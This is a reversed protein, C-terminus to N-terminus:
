HFITEQRSFAFLSEYNSCSITNLTCVTALPRMTLWEILFLVITNSFAFARQHKTKRHLCYVHITNCTTLQKLQCQWKNQNCYLLHNIRQNAAFHAFTKKKQYYSSKFRSLHTRTAYNSTVLPIKQFAMFRHTLFLSKSSLSLSDSCVILITPYFHQQSEHIANIVVRRLPRSLGSQTVVRASGYEM